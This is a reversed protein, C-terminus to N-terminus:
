DTIHTKRAPEPSTVPWGLFDDRWLARYDQLNNTQVAQWYARERAWVADEEKTTQQAPCMGPLVLLVVLMSALRKM